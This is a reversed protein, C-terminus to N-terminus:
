SGGSAGCRRLSFGRGTAMRVCAYGGIETEAQPPSQSKGTAPPSEELLAGVLLQAAEREAIEAAISFESEPKTSQASRARGFLEDATPIAL